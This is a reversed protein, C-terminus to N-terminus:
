GSARPWCARRMANKKTKKEGGAAFVHKHKDRLTQLSKSDLPM